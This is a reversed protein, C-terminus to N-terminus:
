GVRLAQETTARIRELSKSDSDVVPLLVILEAGSGHDRNRAEAKGGHIEVLRRVIALRSSALWSDAIVGFLNSRSNYSLGCEM